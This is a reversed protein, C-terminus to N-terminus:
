EGIYYEGDGDAKITGLTGLEIDEKGESVKDRFDEPYDLYEVRKYKKMEEDTLEKEVNSRYVSLNASGDGDVSIKIDRSSGTMICMDIHRVIAEFAKMDESDGMIM